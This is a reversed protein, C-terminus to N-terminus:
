RVYADLWWIRVCFWFGLYRGFFRRREGRLSFFFFVKVCACVGVYMWVVFGFVSLGSLVFVFFRVYVDCRMADCRLGGGKGGGQESM